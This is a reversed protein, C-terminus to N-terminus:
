MKLHLTYSSPWEDSKIYYIEYKKLDLDISCLEMSSPYTGDSSIKM